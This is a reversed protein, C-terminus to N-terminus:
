FPSGASCSSAESSSATLDRLVLTAYIPHGHSTLRAASLISQGRRNAGFDSFFDFVCSLAIVPWMACHTSTTRTRATGVCVYHSKRHSISGTGESKSAGHEMHGEKSKGVSSTSLVLSLLCPCGVSSTFSSSCCCDALAFGTRNLFAPKIQGHRHTTNITSANDM